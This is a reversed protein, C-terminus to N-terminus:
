NLEDCRLRSARAPTFQVVSNTGRGGCRLVCLGTSLPDPSQFLFFFVGLSKQDCLWTKREGGEGGSDPCGVMALAGRLALWGIAQAGHGSFWPFFSFFVTWFLIM